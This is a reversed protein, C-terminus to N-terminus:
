TPRTLRSICLPSKSSTVRGEIFVRSRARCPFLDSSRRTPFSVSIKLRTEADRISGVWLVDVSGSGNGALNLRDLPLNNSSLLSLAPALPFGALQMRVVGRELSGPAVRGLVRAQRAPTAELSNQWNTVDVDGLLEGSMLEAKISSLRFRTPTISFAAEARGNHLVVKPTSCDLEKAQLKGDTSFDQRSWTGKGSFQLTGKHVQPQRLVSAIEALDAVGKYEGSIKPNQFDQVEGVFHFESNGSKLTLSSIEARRRALVLSADASWVFGPYEQWHTDINGASVRAEYRQHLLSYHLLFALDKASFSFPIKQDQWLLEGKQVEIRGVSLSILREVPSESSYVAPPVPLNTTGDPYDIVHVVPHELVLSHLGIDTSLLSIIKLEAQVRDAQLFPQTDAAERGHITLSRAEVRLRFPITHLEGLEVRGGTAKELAAVVRQRMWRQFSDTTVYWALAGLAVLSFVLFALLLHRLIRRRAPLPSPASM